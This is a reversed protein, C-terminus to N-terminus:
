KKSNKVTKRFKNKKYMPNVMTFSESAKSKKESKKETKSAKKKQCRYIKAARKLTGSSACSKYQNRENLYFSKM